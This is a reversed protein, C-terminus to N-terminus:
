HLVELFTALEELFFNFSTGVIGCYINFKRHSYLTNHENSHTQFSTSEKFALKVNETIFPFLLHWTGNQSILKNRKGEGKKYEVGGEGGLHQARQYQIENWWHSMQQYLTRKQTYLEGSGM